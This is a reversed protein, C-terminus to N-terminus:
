KNMTAVAPSHMVAVTVVFPLAQEDKPDRAAKTYRVAYFLVSIARSCINAIPNPRATEARPPVELGSGAKALRGYSRRGQLPEKV